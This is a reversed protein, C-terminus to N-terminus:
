WLLGYVITSAYYRVDYLFVYTAVVSSTRPVRDEIAQYMNPGPCPRGIDISPTRTPYKWARWAACTRIPRAYGFAYRLELLLTTENAQRISRIRRPRPPGRRPEAAVTPAARLGGPGAWCGRLTSTTLPHQDTCTSLGTCARRMTSPRTAPVATSLSRGGRVPLIARRSMRQM